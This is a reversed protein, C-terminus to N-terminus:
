SPKDNNLNSFRPQSQAVGTSSNNEIVGLNKKVAVEFVNYRVSLVNLQGKVIRKITVKM